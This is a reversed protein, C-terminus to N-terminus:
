SLKYEKLIKEIAEICSSAERDNKEFFLKVEAKGKKGITNIEHLKYKGEAEKLFIEFAEEANLEGLAIKSILDLSVGLNNALNRLEWIDHVKKKGFKWQHTYKYDYDILRGIEIDKIFEETIDAGEMGEEKKLEYLAVKRAFLFLERSEPFKIEYVKRRVKKKMTMGGKM